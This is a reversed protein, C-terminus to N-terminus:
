IRSFALFYECQHILFVIKRLTVQKGVDLVHRLDPGWGIRKNNQMASAIVQGMIHHGDIDRCIQIYDNLSRTKHPWLAEKCYKNTSEFALQKVIPMVNDANGFMFGALQLLWDVLEFYPESPGQLVKSLQVGAAKNPLAKWAGGVAASSQAYVAPDYLIQQGLGAYAGTGSLM